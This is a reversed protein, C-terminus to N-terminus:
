PESEALKRKAELVQESAWPSDEYLDVLGRWIARAADRDSTQLADAADLRQQLTERHQKAAEDASQQLREWQKRALEVAAKVAADEDTSQGFVAILAALMQAGQNPDNQAVRMADLYTKQVLPMEEGVRLGRGRRELTRELRVVEIEQQYANLEASRPDNPFRNLFATIESAAATADSQEVTQAIRAYLQDASPPRTAYWILGVAVLVTLGAAIMKLWVFQDEDSGATDLQGLEEQSVATFSSTPTPQATIAVEVPPTPATHVLTEQTANVQVSFGSSPQATPQQLLTSNPDGGRTAAGEAVEFDDDAIPAADAAPDLMTQPQATSMSQLLNLLALATPIRKKPDKELLRAVINELGVPVTACYRSVLPADNFRVQHIIDPISRGQFPPRGALLCFMSAGLSYLDSRATVGEGAAQEPSMYDATGIVGGVATFEAGGFLKAIGFDALLIQNEGGRLFNAPKLDRHIVGRDHAHKLAKCVDVGIAIVERWDFHRGKRLENELNDGEILEMAYFLSGQEEGFGYLQVINPHRLKKLTEIEAAFRGRFNPEAAFAPALVKVAAREGTEENLGAYVAGMGGRGLLRELRYPGLKEPHTM